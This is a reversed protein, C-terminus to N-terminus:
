SNGLRKIESFINTRAKQELETMIYFIQNRNLLKRLFEARGKHILIKNEEGYIEYLEKLINNQSKRFALDDAALHSLDLDLLEQALPSLFQQDELHFATAQIAAIIEDNPLNDESPDEHDTIGTICMATYAVISQAESWGPPAPHKVHQLDHFLIAKLLDSSPNPTANLMQNIHDLSHYYRHPQSYFKQILEKCYSTLGLQECAKDFNM